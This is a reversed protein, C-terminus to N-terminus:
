AMPVHCLGTVVGRETIWTALQVKSSLTASGNGPILGGVLGAVLGFILGSLLRLTNHPQYVPTYAEFISLYSNLGDLGYLGGLAIMVLLVRIGPLRSARLRGRTAFVIVGTIVGLYIGTCRACLPLPRDHAHFSREAIRHCIAYGVADAKGLVGPPTGHLWLGAIVAGLLAAVLGM